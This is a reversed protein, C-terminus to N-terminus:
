CVLYWYISQMLRNDSMASDYASTRFSVVKIARLAPGKMRVCGLGRTVEFNKRFKKRGVENLVFASAVAAFVLLILIFIGTEWDSGAAVRKTAFLITKMLQGQSTEFGTRLVVCPCGRDPPPPLGAWSAVDGGGSGGTLRVGGQDVDTFQLM